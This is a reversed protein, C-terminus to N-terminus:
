FVWPMYKKCSFYAIVTIVAFYPWSRFMYRLGNQTYAYKYDYDNTCYITSGDEYFQWSWIGFILSTLGWFWNTLYWIIAIAAISMWVTFKYIRRYRQYKKEFQIIHPPNEASKNNKNM